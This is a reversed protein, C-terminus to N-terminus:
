GHGNEECDKEWRHPTKHGGWAKQKGRESGPGATGAFLTLHKIGRDNRILDRAGRSANLARRLKELAKPGVCIICGTRDCHAILSDLEYEASMIQREIRTGRSWKM